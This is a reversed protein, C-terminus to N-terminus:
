YSLRDMLRTFFSTSTYDQSVEGTADDLTVKREVTRPFFSLFKKKEAVTLSYEVGDDNAVADLQQNESDFGSILGAEQMRALAQDPLHTLVHTQGSPTTLAVDGTTPDYVFEAGNMHAKVNRSKLELAKSDANKRERLETMEQIREQRATRIKEQYESLKQKQEDTMNKTKSPFRVELNETKVVDKEDVVTQELDDKLEIKAGDAEMTVVMDKNSSVPVIRSPARSPMAQRIAPRGDTSRGLVYGEYMKMNGAQDVEVEFALAPSTLAIFVFTALGFKLATKKM